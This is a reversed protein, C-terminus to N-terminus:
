NLGFEEKAQIKCSEVYNNYVEFENKIDIGATYKRLIAIESDSDPYKLKVLQKVRSVYQNTIIPNVISFIGDKYYISGEPITDVYFIDVMDLPIFTDDSIKVLSGNVIEAYNVSIICGDQKNAVIKHM